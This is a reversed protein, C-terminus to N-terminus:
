PRPGMNNLASPNETTRGKSGRKPDPWARTPPHPCPPGSHFFFSFSTNRYGPKGFIGVPVGHTPPQRNATPSQRSATSPPQHRNITTPPLQHNPIPPQHRNATTPLQRNTAAPPQRCNATPPQHRNATPPPQHNATSPEKSRDKLATRLLFSFRPGLPGGQTPSPERITCVDPSKPPAGSAPPALAGRCCSAHGLWRGQGYDPM